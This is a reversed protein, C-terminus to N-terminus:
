ADDGGAPPNEDHLHVHHHVVSLEQGYMEQLREGTLERTPHVVVSRNVCVVKSIHRSVFGIDHSVIMVAMRSELQALLEQFAQEMGADLNATPEDLLLLKPDTALARAILTRQRQGGSMDAFARDALDALDVRQLADRAAQRDAQTYRGLGRSCGLRGMLVVDWATVPFHPDFQVYQPVYGVQGRAQGPRQAFVRVTGADPRLLGLLLKLLTTKGGGNPGVVAVTEDAEVRLDVDRLVDNHGDYAFRVGSIDVAPTM